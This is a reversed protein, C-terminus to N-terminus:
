EVCVFGSSGVCVCMCWYIESRSSPRCLSTVDTFQKINRKVKVELLMIFIPKNKPCMWISTLLYIYTIYIYADFLACLMFGVYM